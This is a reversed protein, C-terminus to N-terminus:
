NNSQSLAHSAIDHFREHEGPMVPIKGTVFWSQIFPEPRGSILIHSDPYTRLSLLKIKAPLETAIIIYTFDRDWPLATPDTYQDEPADPPV